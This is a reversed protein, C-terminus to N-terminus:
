FLIVLVVVRLNLVIDCFGFVQFYVCVLFCGEGEVILGDFFNIEEGVQVISYVFCFFCIFDDFSCDVFCM